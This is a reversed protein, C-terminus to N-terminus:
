KAAGWSDGQGTDAILPIKLSVCEEMIRGAEDHAQFAEKTQPVSWNLEDHVTLLPAGLTDCIGAEWIDVMAKKMIDAASGQLLANLAKNTHARRVRHEYKERAEQESFSGDKKATDWNTSEWRDWRRRRGLITRIWGRQRARRDCLNYLDKVFSVTDHYTRFMPKVVALPQGLNAAMTTEGMGYVLGFNINKAPKREIGTLESVFKHFDTSRDTRYQERIKDASAGIGYHVLLRFEIQSWDDSFWIEGPDPIFLSRILPGLEEDRAPINQLNPHSSSFRGSVTGYEDGRLQHFQTHIRGNVQNGLIAGELFTGANKELRRLEYISRLVENQHRELWTGRFSPNGQATSPYTLNHQDCYWAITDNSWPDIGYAELEDRLRTAESTMREDIEETRSVDVAVGRRRMALMMPVLRTELDFIPELDDTAMVQRQKRLIARPLEVDGLAYQGVMQPPALYIRGAQDKRTPQGGYAKSLWEYLQDGRKGEDLYKQACHELSYTFSNEDILPEAILTDLYPGPVEVGAQWLYDLDYLLNAGIKPIVPRCLERKAWRLVIDRDMNIGQPDYAKSHQMPFYWSDDETAVAIGIIYGDRRAGPGKTKLDPDYTEIDIILEKAADLRPFDRPRWTCDDPIPPIRVYGGGSRKQKQEEEWLFGRSDWRDNM